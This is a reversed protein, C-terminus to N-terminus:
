ATRGPCGCDFIFVDVSDLLESPVELKKCLGADKVSVAQMDVGGGGRISRFPSPGVAALKGGSLFTRTAAHRSASLTYGAVFALSTSALLSRFGQVVM